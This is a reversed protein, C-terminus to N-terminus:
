DGRDRLGPQDVRRRHGLEDRGARRDHVDQEEPQSSNDIVLQGRDCAYPISSVSLTIINSAFSDSDAAAIDAELTNSLPVPYFYGRGPQAATVAVPNTTTSALGTM